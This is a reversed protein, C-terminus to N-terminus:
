DARKACGAMTEGDYNWRATFEFTQDSMGDSCPGDTIDLSFDKDGDKGTFVVGSGQASRAAVLAKGAQREPTKWTLATGEVDVSWFPENGHAVFRTVPTEGANSAPAPTAPEATAAPPATPAVVNNRTDDVPKACAALLAAACTAALLSPVNLNSMAREEHTSVGHM